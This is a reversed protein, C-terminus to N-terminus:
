YFKATEMVHFTWLEQLHTQFTETVQNQQFQAAKSNGPLIRM